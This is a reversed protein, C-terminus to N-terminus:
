ILKLDITVRRRGFISDEKLQSLIEPRLSYETGAKSM